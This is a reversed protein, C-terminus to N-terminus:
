EPEFGILLIGDKQIFKLARVEWDFAFTKIRGDDFYVTWGGYNYRAVDRVHRLVVFDLGENDHGTRMIYKEPIGTAIGDKCIESEHETMKSSIISFLMNM